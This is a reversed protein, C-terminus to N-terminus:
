KFYEEKLNNIEMPSVEALISFFNEANALEFQNVGVYRRLFTFFAEDGVQNRLENIFLAGRLYVANVYPRYEQHDLITSNVWGTPAYENVRYDWWWPVLYPYAREYYLLESYACLAEDLWPEVAQDNGVVGYWWQHATEHVSLACLGSQPSGSFYEYYTENLFFLGDYEMGDPFSTEVMAMSPLSYDGFIESFVELAESVYRVGASGASYHEPFVYGRVATGEFSGEVVQYFPSASWVFNRAAQKHYRFTNENLEATAGAAIILGPQSDELNIEVSYDAIDYVLHEGVPAPSHVLWGFDLDYPPVFPYWNALNTQRYTYGFPDSRNPLSLEYELMLGVHEGSQLSQQLPVQLITADLRYVEVTEGHAWQIRNLQFVEQERNPEVLFFLEDLPQSYCNVYDIVESVSLHHDTYNFNVVLNYSPRREQCGQWTTDSTDSNPTPSNVATSATEPDITPAPTASQVSQEEGVVKTATAQETPEFGILFPIDQPVCASVLLICIM